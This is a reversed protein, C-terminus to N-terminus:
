CERREPKLMSISSSRGGNLNPAVKGSLQWGEFDKRVKESNPIFPPVIGALPSFAVIDSITCNNRDFSFSLHSL